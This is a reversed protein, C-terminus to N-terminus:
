RMERAIVREVEAHAEQLRRLGADGDSMYAAILIPARGPPMAIAVDTTM